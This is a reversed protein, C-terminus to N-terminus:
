QPSPFQTRYVALNDVGWRGLGGNMGAEGLSQGRTPSDPLISLVDSTLQAM